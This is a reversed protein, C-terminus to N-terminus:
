GGGRRALLAAAHKQISPFLCLLDQVIGPELNESQTSIMLKRRTNKLTGTNVELFFSMFDSRGRGCRSLHIIVLNKNKEPVKQVNM